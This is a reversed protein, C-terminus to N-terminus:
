GHSSLFFFFFFFSLGFGKHSVSAFLLSHGGLGQGPPWPHVPNRVLSEREMSKERIFNARAFFHSFSLSLRPVLSGFCHTTMGIVHCIADHMGSFDSSTYMGSGKGGQPHPRPVLSLVCAYNLVM